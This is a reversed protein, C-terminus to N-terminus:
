TFMMMLFCDIYALIDEKQYRIENVKGIQKHPLHYSIELYFSVLTELMKWFIPISILPLLLMPFVAM